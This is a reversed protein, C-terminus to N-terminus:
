SYLIPKYFTSNSLMKRDFFMLYCTIQKIRENGVELKIYIIRNVIFIKDEKQLEVYIEYCIYMYLKLPVTLKRDFHVIIVVIGFFSTQNFLQRM